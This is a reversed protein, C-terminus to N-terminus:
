AGAGAAEGTELGAPAPLGGDMMLPDIASSTPNSGYRADFAFRHSGLPVAAFLVVVVEAVVFGARSERDRLSLRRNSAV